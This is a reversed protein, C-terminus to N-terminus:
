KLTDLLSRMLDYEKSKLLDRRLVILPKNPAMAVESLPFPIAKDDVKIYAVYGAFYFRFFRVGSHIDDHPDFFVRALPNTFKALIIGFDEQFGPNRDAIM